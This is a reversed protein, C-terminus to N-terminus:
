FYIYLSHNPDKNTLAPDLNKIFFYIYLNKETKLFQM